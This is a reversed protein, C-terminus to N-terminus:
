DESALRTELAALHGDMRDILKGTEVHRSKLRKLDGRLRDIEARGAVPATGEGGILWAATVDLVGALMVIRNPRPESRGTEWATLTRTGVGLRRALQATSLGGAERASVIREALTANSSAAPAAM